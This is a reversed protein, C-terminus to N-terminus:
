IDDDLEEGEDMGGETKSQSAASKCSLDVLVVATIIVATNFLVLQNALSSHLPLLLSM